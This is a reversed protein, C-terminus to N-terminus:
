EVLEFFKYSPWAYTKNLVAEVIEKELVGYHRAAEFSDRFVLDDDIARVPAEIPHHYRREFQRNYKVAYWRPRWVLNAAECNMRDGDLQIPTDFIPNPREVFADAVLRPLSRVYQRGDRTLGVYPVGFQNYRVGLIRKSYDHRIHGLPNISYDEFGPLEYWENRNAM